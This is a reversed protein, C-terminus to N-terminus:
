LTVRSWFRSKLAPDRLAELKEWLPYFRRFHEASMHADKAPYLRGNSEAVIEDLRRLLRSDLNTTQPFDLALSTGSLPFSILGPSNIDGCRKLVALFSGTGANAIEKLLERTTAEANDDPIVCQFQQFGKSGYVRNWNLIRDLPYFFPEYNVRSNTKKTPQLHWYCSNFINLTSRNFPSAPPTMPINLKSQKAVGLQGYKAHDGVIFVGRGINDGKALCDIWAVSYEHQCDLENSLQFFERLNNFRLKTSEIANSCIPVLNLTCSTIIGTLGLGGITASFLDSNEQVSCTLQGEQSRLLEFSHINNGFTGRRHHNKGHVDNAIAGGVTVFQTGPTVPLFWGKPISIALIQALTIGAEVVIRGNKWNAQIFRDMSGTMVVQDSVALCSDGYSRGSGYALTEGFQESISKFALPLESRWACLHGTQPYYPYRGWSYLHPSM